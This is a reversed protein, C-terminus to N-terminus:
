ALARSVTAEIHAALAPDIRLKAALQELYRREAPGDPVMALLSAAYIEAAMEPTRAARAVADIDLPKRLEDMVFAKGAQDLGAKDIASFIRQQEDADIHGDAKAAAIMARILAEGLANRAAADSEPPLFASDAPPPPLALPQQGAPGGAAPRAPAAQGAKWDGYAKYALSGLLALGGVAAAGGALQRGTKTGLLLGALGGALAGGAIGGMGGSAGPKGGLMGAVQGLIGGLGGGGAAGLSSGLGGLGGGIGGGIGGALGKGLASGGGAGLLQNLLRQADLM